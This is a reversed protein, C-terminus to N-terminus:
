RSTSGGPEARLRWSDGGLAEAADRFYQAPVPRVVFDLTKALEMPTPARELASRYDTVIAAVAQDFTACLDSPADEGGEFV